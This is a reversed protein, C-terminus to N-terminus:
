GLLFPCRIGTGAHHFLHHILDFRETELLKRVHGRAKWQWRIAHLQSNLYQEYSHHVIPKLDLYLVTFPFEGMQVKLQRMHNEFYRHTLVTVEHDKSLEMAWAWGVGPESGWVPSFAFASLLIKMSSM